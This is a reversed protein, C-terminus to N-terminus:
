SSRVFPRVSPIVSLGFVIYGGKKWLLAIFINVFGIYIKDIHICIYFKTFNQGITRLINFPFFIKAYILPWLEPVFTRFNIISLGLSFRTLIFAYTSRLTLIPVIGYYSQAFHSNRFHRVSHSIKSQATCNRFQGHM